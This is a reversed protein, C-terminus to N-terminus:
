SALLNLNNSEDASDEPCGPNADTSDGSGTLLTWPINRSGQPFGRAPRGDTSDVKGATACRIPHQAGLDLRGAGHSPRGGRRNEPSGHAGRNASWPEADTSDWGRAASYSAM